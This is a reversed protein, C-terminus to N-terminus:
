TLGRVTATDLQVLKGQPTLWSHRDQLQMAIDATSPAALLHMPGAHEAAAVWAADVTGRFHHAKGCAGMADRLVGTDAQSGVHRTAGACSGGPVPV